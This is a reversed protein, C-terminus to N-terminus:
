LLGVAFIIGPPACAGRIWAACLLSILLPFVMARRLCGIWMVRWLGATDVLVLAHTGPADESRRMVRALSLGLARRGVSPRGSKVATFSLEVM